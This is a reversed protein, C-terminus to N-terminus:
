DAYVYKSSFLFTIASTIVAALFISLLYMIHLVSAFVFVISANIWFTNLYGLMFTAYRKGYNEKSHHRFTIASNLLFILTWGFFVSVLFSFFYWWGLYETLAYTIALKLLLGITGVIAFQVFRLFHALREKTIFSPM